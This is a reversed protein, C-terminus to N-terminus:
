ECGIEGSKYLTFALQTCTLRPLFAQANCLRCMIEGTTDTIIMIIIIMIIIIIVHGM